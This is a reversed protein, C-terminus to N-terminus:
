YAGGITKSAEMKKDDILGFPRSDRITNNPPTVTIERWAAELDELMGIVEDFAEMNKQLDGDMVRRMMYSYLSNLGTAITKGKEFDLSQMLVALIDYTKQVAKGKAEFEGASYKERAIKLHRIAGEYCMLILKRPDATTVNTQKYANLGNVGRYM